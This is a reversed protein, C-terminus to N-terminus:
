AFTESDSRGGLLTELVTYDGGGALAEVLVHVVPRPVGVTGQTLHAVEECLEALVHSAELGGLEGQDRRQEQGVDLEVPAGKKRQGLREGFALDLREFDM